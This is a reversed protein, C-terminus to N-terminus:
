RPWLEKLKSMIHKITHHNSYLVTDLDKITQSLEKNLSKLNHSIKKFKENNESPKAILNNSIYKDKSM